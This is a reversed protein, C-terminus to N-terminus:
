KSDPSDRLMTEGERIFRPQARTVPLSVSRFRRTELPDYSHAGADIIPVFLARSLQARGSERVDGDSLAVCFRKCWEVLKPIVLQKQFELWRNRADEQKISSRFDQSSVVTRSSFSVAPHRGELVPIVTRDRESNVTVHVGKMKPTYQLETSSRPPESFSVVCRPFHRECEDQKAFIPASDNFEAEANAFANRCEEVTLLSASQCAKTTVYMATRTGAQLTPALSVLGYLVVGARLARTQCRRM